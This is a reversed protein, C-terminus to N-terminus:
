VATGDTAIMPGDLLISVGLPAAVELVHLDGGFWIPALDLPAGDLFVKVDKVSEPDIDQTFSVTVLGDNANQRAFRVAPRSRTSFRTLPQNGNERPYSWVLDALDANVFTADVWTSDVFYLEYDDEPLVAGPFFRFVVEDGEDSRQSSGAVDVGALTRLGIATPAEDGREAGIAVRVTPVITSSVSTENPTPSVTYVTIDVSPASTAVSALAAAALPLLRLLAVFHRM